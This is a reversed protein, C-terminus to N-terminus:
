LREASTGLVEAVTTELSLAKVASVVTVVTYLDCPCPSCLRVEYVEDEESALGERELPGRQM